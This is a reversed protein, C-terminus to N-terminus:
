YYLAAGLVVSFSFILPIKLKYYYNSTCITNLLLFADFMTNDQLIIVRVYM